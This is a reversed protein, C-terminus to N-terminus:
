AVHETPAHGGNRAVKGFQGLGVALRDGDIQLAQGRKARGRRRLRLAVAGAAPLFQGESGQTPNQARAFRKLPKLANKQLEFIRPRINYM